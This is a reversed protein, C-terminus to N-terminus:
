SIPEVKISNGGPLDNDLNEKYITSDILNPKVVVIKDPYLMGYYIKFHLDEEIVDPVPATIAVAVDWDHQLSSSALKSESLGNSKSSVSGDSNVIFYYDGPKKSMNVHYLKKKDSFTTGVLIYTNDNCSKSDLSVKITTAKISQNVESQLTKRVQSNLEELSLGTKERFVTNLDSQSILDKLLHNIKEFGIREILIAAAIYNAYQYKYGMENLHSLEGKVLADLTTKRSYGFSKQNTLSYFTNSFYEYNGLGNFLWDPVNNKLGAMNWTNLQTFSWVLMNGINPGTIKSLDIGIINPFVYYSSVAEAEARTYRRIELAGNVFSAHDSYIYIDYFKDQIPTFDKTVKLYAKEAYEKVIDIEEQRIGNAPLINTHNTAYKKGTITVTNIHRYWDVRCNLSEAVFRIPVMVRSNVSKPPVDPSILQGNVLIQIEGTNNPPPSFSTEGSNIIVTNTDENWDVFAGLAEAVFRVPVLTRGDVVVPSVDPMIILGNVRIKVAEEAEAFSSEWFVFLILLLSIIVKKM